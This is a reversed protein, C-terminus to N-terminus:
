WMRSNSHCKLKVKSLSRDSTPTVPASRATGLSSMSGGNSSSGYDMSRKSKRKKISSHASSGFKPPPMRTSDDTPTRKESIKRTDMGSNFDGSEEISYSYRFRYNQLISPAKFVKKPVIFIWESHKRQRYYRSDIIPPLSSPAFGGSEAFVDGSKGSNFYNNFAETTKKVKVSLSGFRSLAGGSGRNTTPAQFYYGM